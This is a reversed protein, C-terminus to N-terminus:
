AYRETLIFFPFYQSKIKGGSAITKNKIYIINKALGHVELVVFTYWATYRYSFISLM